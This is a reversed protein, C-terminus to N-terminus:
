MIASRPGTVIGIKFEHAGDQVKLLLSDGSGISNIMTRNNAGDCAFDLGASSPGRLAMMHIVSGTQEVKLLYNSDGSVHLQNGPSSTGIGTRGTDGEVVLKGSGVNFDDGADTGLTVGVSTGAKSSITAVGM